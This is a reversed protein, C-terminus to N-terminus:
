RCNETIVDRARAVEAAIQGQEMFVREGRENTRTLRIGSQLDRLNAQARSCNERKREAM